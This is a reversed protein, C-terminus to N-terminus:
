TLWHTDDTSSSTELAKFSAYAPYAFGIVNSLLEGWVNLLIMLMYLVGVTAALYAKPINTKKELQNAIPFQSLFKDLKNIQVTIFEM